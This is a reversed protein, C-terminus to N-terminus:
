DRKKVRTAKKGVRDRLYFLRARRVKGKQKVEVKSLLPSHLLYSKEVGIGDVIRRVTFLTRVGTNQIKTVLGEFRQIRKKKGELIEKFVAVSDGVRFSPAQKNLQEKELEDIINSM